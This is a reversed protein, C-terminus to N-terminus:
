ASEAIAAPALKALTDFRRIRGRLRTAPDVTALAAIEHRIAARGPPLVTRTGTACRSIRPHHPRSRALPSFTSRASAKDTAAQPARQTTHHLIASAGEPPLPSLWGHAACCGTPRSWRWRAAAPARASCCRCRRHTSRDYRRPLPRDRRGARRGRGGEVARRGAHRHRSWRCTWNRPWGCGAAPRGCRRRVSRRRPTQGRRDQGLLVCPLRRLPGAGPAARTTRARAPATSRWSTPPPTALLERVGPRSPRRSALVSEWAPVDRCSDRVPDAVVTRALAARLCSACRGTSSEALEDPPRVADILGHAHLNEATQVGTPFPRRLAGRLGPARPLRDLAGPEAITVHGLSGWSAFVGGTTPIGCTSSTPCPRGQARHRGRHDQGDAPLRDHRGAHPHRGLDAPGAASAARRTARRIAAVLREGAAVGISGGLFGFECVLSRSAAAACPRRAPSSRNTWGPRRAARPWNTPTSPTAPSRRRGAHGM